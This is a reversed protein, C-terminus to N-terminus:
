EAAMRMEHGLYDRLTAAIETIDQQLAEYEDKLTFNDEDMYLGRNIEIQIAHIGSRPAGYHQTIFGGAYPMNRTVHYGRATFEDELLAVLSPAASRGYHDGLVIDANTAKSPMSHCDILVAEGFQHRAATLITKLDRHYPRYLSEIRMLAEDLDIKGEYIPRSGAIKPITGLGNSVRPSHPNAYAPLAQHFMHADLEYAERNLDVFARPFHAELLPIGQDIVGAVLLNVAFDESKRLLELPLCSANMFDASYDLGSHPSNFLIGARWRPPMHLSHNM